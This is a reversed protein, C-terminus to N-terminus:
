GGSVATMITVVDGAALMTELGNRDRIHDTNVFLNVHRRVRGTEECISRYLGPHGRELEALVAQVSLASLWLESAGGCCDRLPTPISVAIKPARTGGPTPPLPSALPKATPNLQPSELFNGAPTL